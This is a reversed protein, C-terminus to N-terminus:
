RNVFNMYEKWELRKFICYSSQQNDLYGCIGPINTFRNKPFPINSGEILETVTLGDDLGYNEKFFHATADALYLVKKRILPENKFVFPEFKNESMDYLGFSFQKEGQEFDFSSKAFQKKLLYHKPLNM